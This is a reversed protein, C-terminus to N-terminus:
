LNNLRKRRRRRRFLVIFITLISLFGVVGLIIIPYYDTVDFLKNITVEAYGIHGVLDEAYFTITIEGDPMSRWAKQNITGKLGTFTFNQKGGDITYWTRDCQESILLQFTPPNSSM